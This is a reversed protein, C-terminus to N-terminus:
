ILFEARFLLNLRTGGIQSFFDFLRPTPLVIMRDFLSDTDILVEIITESHLNKEPESVLDVYCHGSHLYADLVAVLM